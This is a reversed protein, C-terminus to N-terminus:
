MAAMGEVVAGAVAEAVACCGAADAPDLACPKHTTPSLEGTTAGERSSQTDPPANCLLYAASKRM